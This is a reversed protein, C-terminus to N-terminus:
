IFHRITRYTDHTNIGKLETLLFSSILVINNLIRYLIKIYTVNDYGRRFLDTIM